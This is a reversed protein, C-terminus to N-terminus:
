RKLIEDLRDQVYNLHGRDDAGHEIRCNVENRLDQVAQRLKDYKVAHHQWRNQLNAIYEDESRVAITAAANPPTIGYASRGQGWAELMLMFHADNQTTLNERLMNIRLTALVERLLTVEFPLTANM